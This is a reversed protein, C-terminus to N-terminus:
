SRAFDMCGGVGCYVTFAVEDSVGPLTAYGIPACGLRMIEVLPAWPNPGQYNGIKWRASRWLVDRPRVYWRTWYSWLRWHDAAAAADADAAAVAAAAAALATKRDTVIRACRPLTGSDQGRARAHWPSIAEYWAALLPRIDDETVPRPPKLWPISKWTAIEARVEAMRKEHDEGFLESRMVERVVTLRKVRFKEHDKAIVDEPLVRVEFWRWRGLDIQRNGFRCTMHATPSVHLGRGCPGTSPPDHDLLEVVSGPAYSVSGTRFDTGDARTCKFATIM